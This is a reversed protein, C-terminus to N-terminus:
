ILFTCNISQKSHPSLHPSVCDNARARTAKYVTKPAAFTSTMSVQAIEISSVRFPTTSSDNISVHCCNNTFSCDSNSSTAHMMGSTGHCHLASKFGQQKCKESMQLCSSIGFGPLALLIVLMAIAASQTKRRM